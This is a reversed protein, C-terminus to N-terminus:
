TVGTTRPSSAHIWPCFRSAFGSLWAHDDAPEPLGKRYGFDFDFDPALSVVLGIVM